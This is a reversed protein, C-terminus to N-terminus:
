DDDTDRIIVNWCQKNLFIYDKQEQLGNKLAVNYNDNESSFRIDLKNAECIDENVIPM